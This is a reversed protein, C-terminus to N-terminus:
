GKLLSDARKRAEDYVKKLPVGLTKAAARCDEFEPSLTVPHGGSSFVKVGIEGYVTAVSRIERDLVLRDMRAIRVGATTTEAFVIRSLADRDEERALVSLKVGPRSKKMIIPTTYVDLAGEEILKEFVHQYFEPNMDDINTEISLITEYAATEELDGIFVRLLNPIALDRKGAGYGVSRVRMEPLPGWHKVFHSLLAAGTPTTLESRIGSSYVP